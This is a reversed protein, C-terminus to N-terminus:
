VLFHRYSNGRLLTFHFHLFDRNVSSIAAKIARLPCKFTELKVQTMLSRHIGVHWLM